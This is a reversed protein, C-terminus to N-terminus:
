PVAAQIIGSVNTWIGDFDADSHETVVTMKKTSGTKTLYFTDLDAIYYGTASGEDSDGWPAVLSSFNSCNDTSYWYCGTFDTGQGDDNGVGCHLTLNAASNAVQNNIRTYAEAHKVDGEWTSTPDTKEFAYWHNYQGGGSVGNYSQGWYVWAVGDYFIGTGPLNKQRGYGGLTETTTLKHPSATWTGGLDTDSNTAVGGNAGGTNQHYQFVWWGGGYGFAVNGDVSPGTISEAHTWTEADPSSYVRWDTSSNQLVLGWLTGNTAIPGHINKGAQPVSSQFSVGRDNSYYVTDSTTYVIRGSYDSYLHTKQPISENVEKFEVMDNTGYLKGDGILFYKYIVAGTPTPIIRRIDQPLGNLSNDLNGDISPLGDPATFIQSNIPM